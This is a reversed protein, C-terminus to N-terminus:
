NEEDGTLLFVVFFVPSPATIRAVFVPLKNQLIAAFRNSFLHQAVKLPQLVPKFTPPLVRLM